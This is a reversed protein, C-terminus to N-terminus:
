RSQDAALVVRVCDLLAAPEYPKKLFRTAGQDLLDRVVAQEHYGSSLVVPVPRIRRLEAFAREGGMRPMTLDLVVCVVQDGLERMADVASQGDVAEQVLFGARQLVRTGLDRVVRDDDVILVTGSGQWPKAAPSAAPDVPQGAVSPLLVRITTGAGPASEIQVAGRHGRVIGQVAALGLGRGTFKTTYFPDFIRQRTATDMGVGTDSVEFFVYETGDRLEGVQPTGVDDVGCRVTGTRLTVSGSTDGLAESANTLLNMVIQQIQVADAEVLPVHEELQLEFSAQKSHSVGLLPGMERVVQNLDLPATDLRGQGSYALLHRCLGAARDAALKIDGIWEHVPSETPIEELALAANGLIGVLLNNFDHAIGGALVGLSELKQAELVKTELARREREAIRRQHSALAVAVLDGISAAFSQEEQSWIRATGVHEHCVVGLMRGGVRIPADLMATIGLPTLYSGTFERTRPDAAADHAALVRESALASFYSPYDQAFLEAGASHRRESRAYLDLCRILSAEDNYLWVSTREVELCDGAASTMRELALQLDADVLEASVALSVLVEQQQRLRDTHARGDNTELAQCRARLAALEAVMEEPTLEDAGAPQDQGTM